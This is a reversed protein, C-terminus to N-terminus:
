FYTKGHFVCISCRMKVHWAQIVRRTQCFILRSKLSNEAAIGRQPPSLRDRHINLAPVACSLQYPIFGNYLNQEIMGAADSICFLILM